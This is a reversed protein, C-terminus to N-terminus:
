KQELIPCIMSESKLDGQYMLLGQLQEQLLRLPQIQQNIEAIKAVLKARVHECPHM